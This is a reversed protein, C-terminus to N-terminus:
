LIRFSRRTKKTRPLIERIFHAMTYSDSENDVIEKKM